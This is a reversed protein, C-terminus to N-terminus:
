NALLAEQPEPFPGGPGPGFTAYFEETSNQESYIPVMVLQPRAGKDALNARHKVQAKEVWTTVSAYGSYGVFQDVLTIAMGVFRLKPNRLSARKFVRLTEVDFQTQLNGVVAEWRTDLGQRMPDPSGNMVFSFGTSNVFSLVGCLAMRRPINDMATSIGAQLTTELTMYGVNQTMGKVNEKIVVPDGSMIDARRHLLEAVVQLGQTQLIYPVQSSAGKAFGETVEFGGRVFKGALKPIWSRELNAFVMRKLSNEMALARIGAATAKQATWVAAGVAGRGIMGTAGHTLRNMREASIRAAMKAGEKYRVTIGVITAMFEDLGVKMILVAAKPGLTNIIKSAIWLALPEVKKVAKSLIYPTGADVVMLGGELWMERSFSDTISNWNDSITQYYPMLVKPSVGARRSFEVRAELDLINMQQFFIDRFFMQQRMISFSFSGLASRWLVGWMSRQELRKERILVTPLIDWADEQKSAGEVWRIDGNEGPVFWIDMLGDGTIDRGYLVINKTDPIAKRMEFLEVEMEDEGNLNKGLYLNFRFTEQITLLDRTFVKASALPTQAYAKTTATILGFCLLTLEVLALRVLLSIM